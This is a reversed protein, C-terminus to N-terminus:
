ETHVAIAAHFEELNSVAALRSRDAATAAEKEVREKPWSLLERVAEAADGDRYQAVLTAWNRPSSRLQPGTTTAQRSQPQGVLVTDPLCVFALAVLASGLALRRMPGGVSCCTRDGAGPGRDCRSRM